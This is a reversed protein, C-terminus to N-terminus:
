FFTWVGRSPPQPPETARGGPSYRTPKVRPALYTTVKCGSTGEPHISHEPDTWRAPALTADATLDSRPSEASVGRRVLGGGMGGKEGM